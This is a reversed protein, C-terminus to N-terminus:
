CGSFVAYQKICTTDVEWFYQAISLIFRISLRFYKTNGLMDLMPRFFCKAYGYHYETMSLSCKVRGYVRRSGTSCNCVVVNVM